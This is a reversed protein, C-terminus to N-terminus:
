HGKSIVPISKSLPFSLRCLMDNSFSSTEV